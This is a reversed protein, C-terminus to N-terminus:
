FLIRYLFIPIVTFYICCLIERLIRSHVKFSLRGFRSIWSGRKCVPDGLCIVLFTRNVVSKFILFDCSVRSSQRKKKAEDDASSKSGSFMRRALERETVKQKQLIGNLNSIEKQVDRDNPSIEKAKQLCKLAATIDNKEKHIQPLVSSDIIYFIYLCISM